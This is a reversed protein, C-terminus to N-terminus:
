VFIDTHKVSNSLAKRSVFRGVARKKTLVSKKRKKSGGTQAVRQGAKHLGGAIFNAGEQRLADKVNVGSQVKSIVKSAGELADPLMAKAISQVHPALFTFINKLSSLFGYGRQYPRGRFVLMGGYQNNIRALNSNFYVHM